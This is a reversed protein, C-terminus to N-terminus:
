ELNVGVRSGPAPATLTHSTTPSTTSATIPPAPQNQVCVSCAVATLVAATVARAVPGPAAAPETSFADPYTVARRRAVTDELTVPLTSSTNTSSPFSIRLPWTSARSSSECIRAASATASACSAAACRPAASSSARSLCASSVSSRRERRICSFTTPLASTSSACPSTSENFARMATACWCTCTVSVITRARCVSRVSMTTRAGNSPMAIELSACGPSIIEGTDAPPPKVRVPIQVITSMPESSISTSTLSVYM